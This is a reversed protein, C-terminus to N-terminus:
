GKLQINMLQDFQEESTEEFSAHIGIGANNVLYDFRERQWVENLAKRVQEAFAAFSASDAVDLRLAVARRGLAEIQRQVQQAEEAGSRYTLLIDIGREALRLATNKGLGRSGGTILAIPSPTPTSM